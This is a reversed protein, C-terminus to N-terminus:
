RAQPPVPPPEASGTRFKEKYNRLADKAGDIHQEHEELEKDSLERAKYGRNKKDPELVVIQIPDSLGGPNVDIAHRMTWLVAFIADPVSIPANKWFADRLFALFPDAIPQGSGITAFPLDETIVEPSGKGDFQLLVAEGSKGLAVLAQAGVSLGYPRGTSRALLEAARFEMELHKWFAERIKVGCAVPSLNALGKSRWLEELEHTYRQGLGLDGSVGIIVQDQCICLKKKVSQRITLRDQSAVLTAAGDAGMVIGNQCKMAAILTM